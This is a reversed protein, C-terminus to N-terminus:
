YIKVINSQRKKQKSPTSKLNNQINSNQTTINGNDNEIIPTSNFDIGRFILWLGFTVEFVAGPILLLIGTYEGLVKQGIFELFAGIGFISYGIIGFISLNQPLIQFKYLYRFFLVSSIALVLMGIHYFELNFNQAVKIKELLEYYTLKQSEYTLTLNTVKFLIIAGFGLSFGEIIRGFLYMKALLNQTNKFIQFMLIGIGFVVLSNILMLVLGMEASQALHMEFKGNNLYLEVLQSGYGYFFFASLFLVGIIRSILKTNQM